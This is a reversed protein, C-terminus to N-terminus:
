SRNLITHLKPGWKGYPDKPLIFIDNCWTYGIVRNEIIKKFAPNEHLLDRYNDNSVIAADLEFALQLVFRDDYSTSTLGPLNKCPTQVIKGAKHLRELEEPDTSKSKNMRFQPIVAKVEHGMREFYEIAIKLGKVSFAQDLGHKFAVNSGDIIVMRKGETLEENAGPNYANENYANLQKTESRTFLNNNTRLRNVPTTPTNDSIKLIKNPPITDDVIPIFDMKNSEGVFIVSDDDLDNSKRKLTSDQDDLNIIEDDCTTEKLRVTRYSNEKLTSLKTYNTFTDTSNISEIGSRRGVDLFFPLNEDDKNLNNNDKTSSKVISAYTSSSKKNHCPTSSVRHKFSNILSQYNTSGDSTSPIDDDGDNDDITIEELTPEIVICDDDDDDNNNNEEKKKAVEVLSIDSESRIEGEELTTTVNQSNNKRHKNLKRKSINNNNSNNILRKSGKKHSSIKKPTVTRSTGNDNVLYVSRRVLRRAQDDVIKKFRNVKGGANRWPSRKLHNKPSEQKRSDHRSTSPRQDTQCESQHSDAAVVNSDVANAAKTRKSRKADRIMKKISEHFERRNKLRQKRALRKRKIDSMLGNNTGSQQSGGAVVNSGGANAANSSSEAREMKRLSRKNKRREKRKQKKASRNRNNRSM